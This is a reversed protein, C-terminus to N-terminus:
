GFIYFYEAIEAVKVEPLARLAGLFNQVEIDSIETYSTISNADEYDSIFKTVQQLTNDELELYLHLNYFSDRGAEESLEAIVKQTM